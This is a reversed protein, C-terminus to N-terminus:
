PAPVGGTSGLAEIYRALAEQTRRSDDIERGLREIEDEEPEDDSPEDVVAFLDEVFLEQLEDDPPDDDFQGLAVRVRAVSEPDLAAFALADVGPGSEELVLADIQRRLEAEREREFALAEEAQARRGARAIGARDMM